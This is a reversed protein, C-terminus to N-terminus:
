QNENFENFMDRFHHVRTQFVCVGKDYFIISCNEKQAYYSSLASDISRFSISDYDKGTDENFNRIKISTYYIRTNDRFLFTKM